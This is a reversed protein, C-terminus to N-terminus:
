QLERKRFPLSATSHVEGAPNEVLTLAAQNGYLLQLRERTNTLGIGSGNAQGLSGSNSVDIWLREGHQAIRLVLDGGAPLRAIGHKVANEVLGQLLMPPLLAERCGPDIERAIRLREEFRISELDLYAEVTELEEGVTIARLADQRLTNRLLDALRTVMARARPADEDIMSRLSNLCNFLFHPNLQQQLSRLKTERALIEARLANLEALRRRRVSQIGLYAALWMGVLLASFFILAWLVVIGERPKSWSLQGELLLFGDLVCAPLLGTVAAGAVLRPLLRAFSMEAWGFRRVRRRLLHTGILGAACYAADAAISRIGSMGNPLLVAFYYGIGYGSWGLFQTLWYARSTEADPTSIGVVPQAPSQELFEGPAEYQRREISM